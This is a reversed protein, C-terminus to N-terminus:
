AHRAWFVADNAGGVAWGVRFRRILRWDSECGTAGANGSLGVTACAHGAPLFAPSTIRINRSCRASAANNIAAPTPAYPTWEYGSSWELTYRCSISSCFGVANRTSAYPYAASHNVVGNKAADISVDIAAM